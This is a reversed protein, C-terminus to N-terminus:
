GPGPHGRRGPRITQGRCGGGQQGARHGDGGRQHGEPYREPHHASPTTAQKSQEALSKIEQAVVVFGKGQEGAKAAEIAANVALLNSQDALDTVTAIIGGISQGQESLFVITKAISDMEQRIHQMGAAAEDAARKGNQSVQAVGQAGSSVNQAKKDSLQAAQRVEEVTSTTESIAAATEATGSAVQATATMIESAAAGLQNVAESIETTSNRLNRAMESFTRSLVGVEDRREKTSVEVTLDGASIQAAVGSIAVLPKVITHNLLLIIFLALAFAVAAIIVFLNAAGKAQQQNLDIRKALKARERQVLDVALTRVKEYRVDQIGGGLQEAEDMKGQQILAILQKRTKRYEAQTNKMERLRSQNQADQELNLLSDLSGDIQAARASINKKITEQNPKNTALMMELVQGRNYNMDSRLQQLMLVKALSVDQMEKESEALSTIDGYALVIVMVLLLWMVGFGLLLKARTSLNSFWIM